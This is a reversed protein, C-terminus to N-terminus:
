WNQFLLNPLERWVVPPAPCRALVGITRASKWKQDTRTAPSSETRAQLDPGKATALEELNRDGINQSRASGCHRESAVLM